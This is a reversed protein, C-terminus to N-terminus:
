GIKIYGDGEEFTYTTVAPEEGDEGPVTFTIEKTGDENEEIAYTGKTTVTNVSGLFTTKVDLTFKKGSFTYTTVISQGAAEVKNEYSGSLTACSVLTLVLLAITACALILSVTKKM